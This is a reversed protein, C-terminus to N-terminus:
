RQIMRFADQFSVLSPYRKCEPRSLPPFTAVTHFGGGKFWKKILWAELFLSVEDLPKQINQSSEGGSADAKKWEKPPGM